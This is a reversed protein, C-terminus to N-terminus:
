SQAPESYTVGSITGSVTITGEGTSTDDGWSKYVPVTVSPQASNVAAVVGAQTAVNRDNVKLTKANIDYGSAGDDLKGEITSQVTSAANYADFTNAKIQLAGTSSNKEITTGDVVVELKKSTSDVQLGGNTTLDVAVGNADVTIGDGGVVTLVGNSESLGNGDAAALKTLIATNVEQATQGGAATIADGIATRVASETVLATTSTSGAAGVTSKVTQDINVPNQTDDTQLRTNVAGIAANYAGKVYATSAIHSQDNADSSTGVFPNNSAAVSTAATPPVGEANALMPSVALLAAISVGLIKNM